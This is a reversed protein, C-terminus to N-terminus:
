CFDVVTTGVDVTDVLDLALASAPFSPCEAPSGFPVVFVEGITNVELSLLEGSLLVIM